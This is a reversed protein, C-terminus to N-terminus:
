FASQKETDLNGVDAELESLSPLYESDIGHSRVAQLGALAGTDCAFTRTNLLLIFCNLRPTPSITPPSPPLRSQSEDVMDGTVCILIIPKLGQDEPVQKLLCNPHTISQKSLGIWETLLEEAQYFSM